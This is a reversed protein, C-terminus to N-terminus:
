ESTESSSEDHYEDAQSPDVVENVHVDGAKEIFSLTPKGGSFEGVALRREDQLTDGNASEVNKIDDM